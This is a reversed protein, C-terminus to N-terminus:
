HHLYLAKLGASQSVSGSQSNGATANGYGSNVSASTKVVGDAHHANPQHQTDNQQVQVNPPSVQMNQIRENQAFAIMPFMTTSVVLAALLKAKM